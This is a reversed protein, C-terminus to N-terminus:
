LALQPMRTSFNPTSLYNIKQHIENTNADLLTKTYNTQKGRRSSKSKLHLLSM